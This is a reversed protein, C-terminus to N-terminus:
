EPVNCTYANLFVQASNIKLSQVKSLFNNVLLFLTKGGRSVSIGLLPAKREPAKREGVKSFLFLHM